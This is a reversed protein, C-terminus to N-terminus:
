SELWADTYTFGGHYNPAIGHTKASAVMTVPGTAVCIAFSEDLFLDNLQSNIAKLKAPDPESAAAGVLSTYADTSFASNNNVPKLGGSTNFLTGPALHGFSAPSFVGGQYKHNVASDVLAPGALVQINLKVDIKALDSQLIQSFQSGEATATLSIDTELNAVGAQALLARAKDLDFAFQANKAADYGASSPGWPLDQASGLGLLASDVFRKRDIAYNFAQRVLKNDMPPKSVNDSLLYFVGSNPHLLGQFARNASLRVYDRLAPLKIAELANAELQASMSQEDRLLSVQVGEVYPRGSRWYNKNRAFTFHDGQAWQVFVFPGTGIAATKANAGEMTDKDVINFYEFFDFVLPRPQDAKLVVTYKDPTEISTFWKSQSLFQGTGVKPDQIRTLNYKVDDSTFDRGSHFQVGKRLNLKLSTADTSSDWSEALMPQPKLNDDYQTLRDYVLWTTEYVGGAFLHGELSPVDGVMATRLTGGSKPQQATSPTPQVVVASAVPAATSASQAPPAGAPTAPPAAPAPASLGCAALLGTGLAWGMGRLVDRRNM